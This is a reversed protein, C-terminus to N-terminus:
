GCQINSIHDHLLLNRREGEDGMGNDSFGDFADEDDSLEVDEISGDDSSVSNAAPKSSGATAGRPLQANSPGDAAAGDLEGEDDSDIDDHDGSFM